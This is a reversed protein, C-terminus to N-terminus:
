MTTARALSGPEFSDSARGLYIDRFRISSRIELLANISGVVSEKSATMTKSM